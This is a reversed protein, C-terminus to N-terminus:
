DSKPIWGFLIKFLLGLVGGVSALVDGVVGGVLEVLDAVISELALLVGYLAGFVQSILGGSYGQGWCKTVGNYTGTLEATLESSGSIVQQQSSTEDEDDASRSKLTSVTSKASNLAAVILNTQTTVTAQATKNQAATSKSNITAVTANIVKTYGKVQTLLTSVVTTSNTTAREDLQIPSAAVLGALAFVVTAISFQM